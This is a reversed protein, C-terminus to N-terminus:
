ELNEVAPLNRVNCLLGKVFLSLPQTRTFGSVTPITPWDVVRQRGAPAFFGVPTPKKTPAKKVYAANYEQIDITLTFTNFINSVIILLM